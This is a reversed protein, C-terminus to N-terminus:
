ENLDNWIQEFYKSFKSNSRRKLPTSEEIEVIYEKKVHAPRKSLVIIKDALSIAESIDHTVLIATLHEEKIMQYIDNSIKIRTQADLASFPEDLLLINPNLMLTRILAIRQRMGGSLESPKMNKFEILDYKKLLNTAKELDQNDIKKSIELGIMINDIITRWEFLLDHQFMYGVKGNIEITGSDPSMLGAILNLITSKGGGSPGVIAVIEGQKVNLTLNDIVKLTKTKQFFTKSINNIILNNM